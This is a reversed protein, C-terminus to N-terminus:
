QTSVETVVVKGHWDLYPFAEVTIDYVGTQHTQWELVGDDVVYEQGAIRVVCSPYPLSSLVVPVGPTIVTADQQTNQRPREEAHPNDGSAGAIYHTAHHFTGLIYPEPECELGDLPCQKNMTIRGTEKQYMTAEYYVLQRDEKM